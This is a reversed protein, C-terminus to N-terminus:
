SYTMLFALGTCLAILWYNKESDKKKIEPIFIKPLITLSLILINEVAKLLIAKVILPKIMSYILYQIDRMIIGKKKAMKKIERIKYLSHKASISENLPLMEEKNIEHSATFNFLYDYKTFFLGKYMNIVCYCCSLISFSRKKPSPPNKIFNSSTSHKSAELNLAKEKRALSSTNQFTQPLSSIGEETSLRCKIPPINSSEIRRIM